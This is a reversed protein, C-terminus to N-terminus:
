VIVTGAKKQGGDREGVNKGGAERLNRESELRRKEEILFGIEAVIKLRKLRANYDNGKKCLEKYQKVLERKRSDIENITM